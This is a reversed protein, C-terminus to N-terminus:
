SERKDNMENMENMENMWIWENCGFVNCFVCQQGHSFIVGLLIWTEAGSM